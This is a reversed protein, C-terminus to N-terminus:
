NEMSARHLPAVLFQVYGFGVAIFIGLNNTMERHASIHVMAQLSFLGDNSAGRSFFM